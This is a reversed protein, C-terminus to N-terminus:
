PEHCTVLGLRALEYTGAPFVAERFGDRLRAFASRYAELWARNRQLAEIRRVVDYPGITRSESPDTELLGTEALREIASELASGGDSSSEKLRTLVALAEAESRERAELYEFVLEDISPEFGPM